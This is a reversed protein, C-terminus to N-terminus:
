QTVTEALKTIYPEAVLLAAQLGNFVTHLIFAPLLNGSYVRLFTLTVSLLTLLFITSFSPLYQPVHVVAFLLTVLTFAVPMGYKKQFASFLVGRYIVEEVLPASFAALIALAIVASRSSKLMRILEHEQEPFVTQVMAAIVFFSGMIILYHWWRIGGSRWGLTAFFPRKGGGTVIFWGIVITALHAPAIGIIQLLIATPDSKAFEAAALSDQPDAFTSIIYPFLLMAPFIVIALVSAVWFLFATLPSWPPDNPDPTKEIPESPLEFERFQSGDNITQETQM